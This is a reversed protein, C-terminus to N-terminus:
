KDLSTHCSAKVVSADNVWYSAAYDLRCHYHGNNRSITLEADSLNGLVGFQGVAYCPKGNLEADFHVIFTAGKTRVVFLEGDDDILGADRLDTMVDCSVYLKYYLGGIPQVHADQLRKYIADIFDRDAYGQHEITNETRSLAAFYLASMTSLYSQKILHFNVEDIKDGVYAQSHKEARFYEIPVYYLDIPNPEEFHTNFTHNTM